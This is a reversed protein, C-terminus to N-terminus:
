FERGVPLVSAPQQFAETPALDKYSSGCGSVPGAAKAEICRAQSTIQPAVFGKASDAGYSRFRM